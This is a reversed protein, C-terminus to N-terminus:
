FCSALLEAVLAVPVTVAASIALAPVLGAGVAVLAATSIAITILTCTIADKM